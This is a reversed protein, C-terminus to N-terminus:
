ECGRERAADRPDDWGAACLRGLKVAGSRCEMSWVLPMFHRWPRTAIAIGSGCSASGMVRHARAGTDGGIRRTRGGWACSGQSFPSRARHIGGRLWQPEVFGGTFCDAPREALGVAPAEEVAVEVSARDGFRFGGPQM